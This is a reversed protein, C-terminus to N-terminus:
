QTGGTLLGLIQKLRMRARRHNQRVAAIEIGLERSIEAYTFGDQTWAMVQRQTPPLQALADLVRQNDERLTVETVPCTGGPRDPVPDSPHTRHDIQRLYCRYAVTRLWKEPVKIRHWEVAAQAFAEHAADAAEYASAGTRMLFRTLKPMEALYM